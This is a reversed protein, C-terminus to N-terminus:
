PKRRTTAPFNWKVENVLAGVNRGYDTVRGDLKGTNYVTAIQADTPNTIGRDILQRKNYGLWAAAGEISGSGTLSQRVSLNANERADKGLQAFGYSGNDGARM